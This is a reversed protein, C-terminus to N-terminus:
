ARMSKCLEDFAHIQEGPVIVAFLAKQGFENYLVSEPIQDPPIKVRIRGDKLMAEAAAAECQGFISFTQTSRRPRRRARERELPVVVAALESARGLTEPMTTPHLPDLKGRVASVWTKLGNWYRCWYDRGKAEWRAGARLMGEETSYYRNRHKRNDGRGTHDLWFEVKYETPTAFRKSPM